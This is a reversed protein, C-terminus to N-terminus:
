LRLQRRAAAFTSRGWRGYSHAVTQKSVIYRPEIQGGFGAFFLRSGTTGVSDFDFVLSKDNALRIADWLLLSVCGNDAAPSRTTLLYYMARQDWAVFIAALVEGNEGRVALIRGYGREMAAACVANIRRYRNHMHRGALNSDYVRAFEDPDTLTTVTYREGARRIVNRTKDRLTQWLATEGSPHVVFTFQVRTTWGADSFAFTDLAGAHLPMAYASCPPLQRILSQTIEFHNNNRTTLSGPGVDLAPGLGHCLEPAGCSRLGFIHEGIAFPLRGIVRGGSRVEVEQYAGGSAAELWWGTHFITPTLPDVGPLPGSARNVTRATVVATSDRDSRPVDPRQVLPKAMITNTDM